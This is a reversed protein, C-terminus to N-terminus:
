GGLPGGVTMGNAGVLRSEPPKLLGSTILKHIVNGSITDSMSYVLAEFCLRTVENPTAEREANEGGLPSVILTNTDKQIGIIFGHDLKMGQEKGEEKKEEKKEVM